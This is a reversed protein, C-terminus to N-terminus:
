RCNIPMGPHPKPRNKDMEIIEDAQKKTILGSKVATTLISIMEKDMAIRFAERDVKYYGFVENFRKNKIEEEVTAVNKGALQALVKVKM